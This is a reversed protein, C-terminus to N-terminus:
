GVLAGAGALWSETATFDPGPTRWPLQETGAYALQMAFDAFAPLHAPAPLYGELPVPAPGRLALAACAGHLRSARSAGNHFRGPARVVVPECGPLIFAAEQTDHYPLVVLRRGGRSALDDALRHALGDFRRPWGRPTTYGAARAIQRLTYGRTPVVLHHFWELVGLYDEARIHCGLEGVRLTTFEGRTYVARGARARGQNFVSLVFGAAGDLDAPAPKYCHKLKRPLYLRICADRDAGARVGVEIPSDSSGCVSWRCDIRNATMMDRIYQAAPGTGLAGSFVVLCDAHTRILHVPVLIASIPPQVAAQLVGPVSRFWDLLRDPFPEPLKEKGSKLDNKLLHIAATAEQFAEPTAVIDIRVCAFGDALVPGDRPTIQKSM